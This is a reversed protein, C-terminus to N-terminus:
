PEIELRDGRQTSSAALTGAPLELATVPKGHHAGAVFLRGPAISEVMDTVVNDRTLFAVDIAFKMGFMHISACHLILLGRGEEFSGRGLLGRMRTWPTTAVECRDAVVGGRSANVIRVSKM